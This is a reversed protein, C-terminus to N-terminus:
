YAFFRCFLVLRRASVKCKGSRDRTRSELDAVPSSTANVGSVDLVRSTSLDAVHTSARHSSSALLEEGSVNGPIASVHVASDAIVRGSSSHFFRSSIGGGGGSTSPVPQLSQIMSRLDIVEMNRVLDVRRRAELIRIFFNLWLFSVNNEAASCALM